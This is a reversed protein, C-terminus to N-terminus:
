ETVGQFESEKQTKLLVTLFVHIVKLEIEDALHLMEILIERREEAELVTYENRVNM